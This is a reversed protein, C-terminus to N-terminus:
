TDKTCVFLMDYKKELAVRQAYAATALCEGPSAFKSMTTTKIEGFSVLQMVVLVWTGM